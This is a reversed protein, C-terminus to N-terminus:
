PAKIGETSKWFGGFNVKISEIAWKVMSDLEGTFVLDFNTRLTGQMGIVSTAEALTLLLALAAEDDVEVIRKVLGDLKGSAIAAAMDTKGSAGVIAVIEQLMPGAIGTLQKFTKPARMAPIHGIVFTREGIKKQVPIAM